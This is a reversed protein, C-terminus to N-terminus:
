LLLGFVHMKVRIEAMKVQAHGVSFIKLVSIKKKYILCKNSLRTLKMLIWAFNVM